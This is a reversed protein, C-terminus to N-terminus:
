PPELAVFNMTVTVGCFFFCRLSGPRSWAVALEEFPLVGEPSDKGRSKIWIKGLKLVTGFLPRCAFEDAGVEALLVRELRVLYMELIDFFPVLEILLDDLIYAVFPEEVARLLIRQTILKSSPSSFRVALGSNWEGRAIVNSQPFTCVTGADWVACSKKKPQKKPGLLQPGNTIPAAFNPMIFQSTAIPQPQIFPTSPGPVVPASQSSSSIVAPAGAKSDISQEPLPEKQRRNRVAIQASSAAANCGQVVPSFSEDLVCTGNVAQYDAGNARCELNQLAHCFAYFIAKGDVKSSWTKAMENFNPAHGSSSAFQGGARVLKRFLSYEQNTHIPTVAFKTNQVSALFQYRNTQSGDLNVLPLPSVKGSNVEPNTRRDCPPIEYKTCLSKPLATIIFTEHTPAFLSVNVYGSHMTRPEKFPLSRYTIDIDDEVWTDYHGDYIVSDGHLSGSQLNKRFCSDSLLAIGMEVSAGLSKFYRRVPNHIGGELGNTGRDSHWVTLGNEDTRLHKYLAVGPPDSVWGKRVDELMASTGSEWTIGGKKLVAEVRAKDVADPVLFADRLWRAFQKGLPHRRKITDSTAPQVIPHDISAAQEPYNAIVADLEPDMFLQYEDDEYVHQCGQSDRSISGHNFKSYESDSDSDSDSETDSFEWELEPDSDVEMPGSTASSLAPAVTDSDVLTHEEQVTLSSLDVVIDFPPNHMDLNIMKTNLDGELVPFKTLREAFFGHAVAIDGNHLTVKEGLLGVRSLRAGAPPRHCIATHIQLAVWTNQVAYEKQEWSLSQQCWDSCCIDQLSNLSRRLVAETIKRFSVSSKTILGKSKALIGVDICGTNSNTFPTPLDWLLSLLNINGQIHYGVKLIHPSSLSMHVFTRPGTTSILARKTNVLNIMKTNLDGELVPFKTLREAFFGHAVAIDGNHLTVKEGLLGVRSLRAGAPPRHCIATHIQLAVWTNQVAYEKQEWSLSQQCWDSCCIDQLSNLSRRLVAETIKRFSVSSKTILGKSKALIGVDICGTNSNTFPTPLDWLLSLLNINGPFENRLHVPLQALIRDHYMNCGKGCLDCRVRKTMVYYCSDLTIVRQAIPNSNWGDDNMVGKLCFICKFVCDLPLLPRPVWVFIDYLYLVNPTLHDSTGKYKELAFWGDMARIWFTNRKYCDPRQSGKTQAKLATLIETLYASVAGEPDPSEEPPPDGMDLARTSSNPHSSTSESAQTGSDPGVTTPVEAPLIILFHPLKPTVAKSTNNTHSQFTSSQQEIVAMTEDSATAPVSMSVSRSSRTILEDPVPDKSVTRTRRKTAQQKEKIRTKLKERTEPKTIRRGSGNCEGGALHGPKNKSGKPHGRAM